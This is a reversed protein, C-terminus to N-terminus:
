PRYVRYYIDQAGEPGQVWAALYAGPAPTPSIRHSYGPPLSPNAIVGAPYASAGALPLEWVSAAGSRTSLWAIRWEGGGRRYLGPFVNVVAGADNTIAQPASWLSGDPSQAYYLHSVPPPDLWPAPQSTDHRVWVLTFQNTATRAAVPLHDHESASNIGPVRAAADWGTAGPHRVTMYIDSTPNAGDRLASVFFVLLSDAAGTVCPVWDDVDPTTTVSDEGAASWSMADTSQNHVIHGRELAYWRFWVLHFVGLDDQFLNPYFDGGPDNTVRVVSEWHVGDHTRTVYLDPNGGRDSFWAVVLSGDRALIVSPDEDKGPSATSLLAPAGPAFDPVVPPAVSEECAAVTVALVLVQVTRPMAAM